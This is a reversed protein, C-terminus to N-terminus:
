IVKIRVWRKNIEQENSFMVNFYQQGKLEVRTGLPVPQPPFYGGAGDAIGILYMELGFKHLFERIEADKRGTSGMIYYNFELVICPVGRDLIRQMGLLVEGETGECDIKVLKPQDQPSLITDLMRGEVKESYAAGEYRHFSSYGIQDVSWLEIEPEDKYWLAQKICCVNNLENEFVHRVLHKYSEENPEFALVMGGPGVLRSMLCTHFGASAGADIAVDGPELFRELVEIIEPEYPCLGPSEPTPYVWSNFEFRHEGRGILVENM